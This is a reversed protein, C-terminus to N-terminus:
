SIRCSSISLDILCRQDFRPLIASVLGASVSLLEKLGRGGGSM